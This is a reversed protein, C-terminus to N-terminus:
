VRRLFRKETQVNTHVTGFEPHADPAGPAAVVFDISHWGTGPSYCRWASCLNVFWM